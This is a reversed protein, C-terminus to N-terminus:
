NAADNLVMGISERFILSAMHDYSTESRNILVIDKGQFFRLFSAAPYVALSTGGVIMLEAASIAGIADNIAKEDLSEEYLVIDPRVIGGCKKCHPVKGKLARVEDTPFPHSCNICYHRLATGHLEIVNKSGAAQHLNDINQTIVASLNGEKELKALAIHANNPSPTDKLFYNYDFDYFIQPNKIFFRHSLITEAPVSYERVTAYIGDKSRFDKVGSETSVGAGGFFVTNSSNQILNKLMDIREEYTKDNKQYM